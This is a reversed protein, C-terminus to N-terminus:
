ASCIVFMKNWYYISIEIGPIASVYTPKVTKSLLKKRQLFHYSFNVSKSRSLIPMALFKKKKGKRLVTM